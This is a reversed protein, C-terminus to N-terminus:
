TCLYLAFSLPFKFSLCVPIKYIGELVIEENYYVDYYEGLLYKFIVIYVSAGM